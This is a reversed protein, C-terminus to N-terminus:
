LYATTLPLAVAAMTCAMCGVKSADVSRVALAVIVGTNAEMPLEASTLSLVLSQKTYKQAKQKFSKTSTPWPTHSQPSHRQSLSQVPSYQLQLVLVSAHMDTSPERQLPRPVHSHPRHTQETGPADPSLQSFHGVHPSAQLEALHSCM